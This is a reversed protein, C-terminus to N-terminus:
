QLVKCGDPSCDFIMRKVEKICNVEYLERKMTKKVLNIESAKHCSHKDILSEAVKGIYKKICIEGRSEPATSGFNIEAPQACWFRPNKYCESSSAQPTFFM